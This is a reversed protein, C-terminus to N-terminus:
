GAWLLVHWAYVRFLLLAVVVGAGMCTYLNFEAPGPRPRGRPTTAYGIGWLVGGIAGGAGALTVAAVAWVALAFLAPAGWSALVAYAVSMILLTAVLSRLRM